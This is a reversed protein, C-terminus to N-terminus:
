HEVIAISKAQKFGACLRCEACQVRRGMEKSAPCLTENAKDLEGLDAIVRFTRRNEEWHMVAEAHSDASQMAIEPRWPKQHTYATFGDVDSLLLEWVRQPVAAPDGYTGVRVFRGRGMEAPDGQELLRSHLYFVDGPYAERGPPRRLLLSVERYAVAQKSLDDFVILAPRGTDRFYEAIAMGTFPAYFQMPAPDSANAAVITTYAMAGADQLTKVIGAVTSGKQGIAVYVCYVPEGRDYFEKQNIITDIAVSTKGTQRDGIILERQGRGVPIMSDIAKIGTQLPESVPQRYIVGPAKRELPMEFTEGEIPGKGDIPNGLTDVVRGLMGEGVNLSAIQGTRKVTSGEKINDDAGLLVIGVNDEELNLVIGRLGSDFEVLEGAQANSLGYARAIGDGVQLITGVEELDAESKFGSLQNRLIASVEASKVEAM